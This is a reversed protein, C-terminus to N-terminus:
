SPEKFKEPYKARMERAWEKRRAAKEAARGPPIKPLEGRDAVQRAIDEYIAWRRPERVEAAALYFGGLLAPTLHGAIRAFIAKDLKTAVPCHATLWQKLEAHWAPVAQAEAEPTVYACV